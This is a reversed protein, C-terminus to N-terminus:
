WDGGATQMTFNTVSGYEILSFCGECTEFSSQNSIVSELYDSWFVARSVVGSEHTRTVIMREPDSQDFTVEKVDPWKPHCSKYAEFADMRKGFVIEINSPDVSGSRILSPISFSRSLRNGDFYLRTEIINRTNNPDASWSRSLVWAPPKVKSLIVKAEEYHDSM